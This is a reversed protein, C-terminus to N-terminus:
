LKINQAWALAALHTLNVREADMSLGDALAAADGDERECAEALALFPGLAGDRSRLAQAVAEPLVVQGFVEDFPIGLLQDLLSLAM